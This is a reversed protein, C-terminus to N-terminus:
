SASAVSTIVLNGEFYVSFGPYDWRTIPPQGVTAHKVAPAGFKSEVTSMSSGRAPMSVSAPAVQPQGGVVVIEAQAASCAALAALCCAARLSM